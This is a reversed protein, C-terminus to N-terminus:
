ELSTVLAVAKNVFNASWWRLDKSDKHDWQVLPDELEVKDKPESKEKHELSVVHVEWDRFDQFVRTELKDVLVPLDLQDKNGKMVVPDL